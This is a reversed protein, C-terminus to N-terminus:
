YFLINSALVETAHDLLSVFSATFEMVQVAYSLGWSQVELIIKVVLNFALSAFLIM